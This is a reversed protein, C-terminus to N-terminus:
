EAAPEDPSPDQRREPISEPTPGNRFLDSVQENLQHCRGKEEEIEKQVGEAVVQEGLPGVVAGVVWFLALTVLAQETTSEFGAGAAIGAICVYGFAILALLPAFRM